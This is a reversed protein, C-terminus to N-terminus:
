SFGRTTITRMAKALIVQRGIPDAKAYARAIPELLEAFPDAAKAKKEDAKVRARVREAVSTAEWEALLKPDEWRKVFDGIGGFVTAGGEATRVVKVQYVSGVSRQYGRGDYLLERQDVTGETVLHWAGALKGGLLLRVGASVWLETVPEPKKETSM